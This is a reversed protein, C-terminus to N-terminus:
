VIRWGAGTSVLTMSSDQFLITIGTEGNITEAGHPLVNVVHATPDTKTIVAFVGSLGVATPLTLDIDDITCDLLAITNTALTLTADASINTTDWPGGLGAPGQPGAPGEPGQPGQPGTEGDFYDVGKIPTLGDM